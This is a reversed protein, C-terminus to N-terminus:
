WAVPGTGGIRRRSKREAAALKRRIRFREIRGRAAAFEQRLPALEEDLRARIWPKPDVIGSPM